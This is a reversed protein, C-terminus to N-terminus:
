TSRHDLTEGDVLNVAALRRRETLVFTLLGLLTM